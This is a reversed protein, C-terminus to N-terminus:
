HSSKTAYNKLVELPIIELTSEHCSELIVPPAVQNEYAEKWRLACLCWREGPHLGPFGFEPVPTLLDNGRQKSFELFASTMEACVVHRGYDSEDTRCYGDRYYGTKPHYCCIKLEQGLVNKPSSKEIAM